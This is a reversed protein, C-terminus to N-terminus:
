WQSVMMMCVSIGFTVPIDHPPQTPVISLARFATGPTLVAFTDSAFSSAVTCNLSPCVECSLNFDAMSFAPYPTSVTLRGASPGALPPQQLYGTVALRPQRGFAAPQRTHRVGSDANDVRAGQPAGQPEGPRDSRRPEGWVLVVFGLRDDPTFGEQAPGKGVAIQNIQKRNAIDIM